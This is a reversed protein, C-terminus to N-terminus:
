AVGWDQRNLLRAILEARGRDVCYGYFGDQGPTIATDVVDFGRSKPEVTWREEDGNDPRPATDLDHTNLDVDPWQVIASRALDPHILFKEVGGFVQALRRQLELAAAPSSLGLVPPMPVIHQLAHEPWGQLDDDISIWRTPRRRQVDAMIQEYRTLNSFEDKQMHRKHFTAGVVRQQLAQPLYGRARAFGLEKVWSTSLVIKLDPYPDLLRVLIPANQFLTQGPTEPRLSPPKRYRLVGGQLVHDYDCYIVDM